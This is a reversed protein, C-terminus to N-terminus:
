TAGHDTAFCDLLSRHGNGTDCNCFCPQQSFVEPINKAYRYAKVVSPDSFRKPDLVAPLPRADAVNSFYAPIRPTPAAAPHGGPSHRPAQSSGSSSSSASTSDRNAGCGILFLSTLLIGVLFSKTMQIEGHSIISNRNQFSLVGKKLM